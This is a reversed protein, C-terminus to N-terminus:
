IWFLVTSRQHPNKKGLEERAIGRLYDPKGEVQQGAPFPVTPTVAWGLASAAGWIGAKGSPHLCRVSVPCHSTLFLLGFVMQLCSSLSSLESPLLFNQNPWSQKNKQKHHTVTRNNKATSQVPCLKSRLTLKISFPASFPYPPLVTRGVQAGWPGALSFYLIKNGDEGEWLAGPQKSLGATNPSALSSSNILCNHYCWILIQPKNNILPCWLFDERGRFSELLM